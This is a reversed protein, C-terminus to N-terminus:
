IDFNLVKLAEFNIVDGGVRRTIYFEVFPKSSFPDRLIQIGSRDVIQYADKISGFIVSKSATGTKLSPLDDCIEVPYGLLTARDSEGIASQWLYRGTARDKMKRVEAIVSRPMLWCANKLYQPKLLYILDILTDAPNDQKFGGKVGTHIEQFKGWEYDKSTQYSLIGKPKHQGDGSIFAENELTSFKEAVRSIIWQEVDISSDEILKSTAKMRSFVEHVPIKVKLLKQNEHEDRVEESAAWGANAMDKDVLIDLVSSSIKIAGALKRIVSHSALTTYIKDAIPEPVMYGGSDKEVSNLAKRQRNNGGETIYKVFDEKVVKDSYDTHVLSVEPRLSKTNISDLKKETTSLLDTFKQLKSSLFSEAIGIGSEAVGKIGDAIVNKFEEIVNTEEKMYNGGENSKNELNKIETIISKENAALTVLSVELLEVQLLRHGGPIPASKVVNYGISFGDIAHNRALHYAEQGKQLERLITGEIYLGYGDERIIDIYGIPLAVDHQWLLKPMKATGSYVSELFISFAGKEVIDGNRDRIGFVSAYGSFGGTESLSKICLNKINKQM